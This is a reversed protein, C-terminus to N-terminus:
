MQPLRVAKFAGAQGLVPGSWPTDSYLVAYTAGFERAAVAWNPSRAYHAQMVRLGAFGGSQLPGYLRAMRKYWERMAADAFPISTYDVLVPRAAVMRFMELEPPILWVADPPSHLAALRAVRVDDGTLDSWVLQTKLGDRGFLGDARTILVAALVMTVFGAAGATRLAASLGPARLVGLLILAAMARVSQEEVAARRAVWLSALLLLGPGVLRLIPWAPAFGTRALVWPGVALGAWTMGALVLAIPHGDASVVMVPLVLTWGIWGNQRVCNAMAWGFGIFGIWKLVMLMRFLQAAVFVRQELMDVFVLSAACMGLVALVAAMLSLIDARMGHLTAHRALVLLTLAAFLGASIWSQAPFTLGLYHHPARFRALIAFFEAGPLRTEEATGWTPAIWALGVLLGFVLGPFILPLVQAPWHRMPHGWVRAIGAAGFAIAAIEVGILPHMLMALAFCAVAGWIRGCLLMYFGALGAPIAINAPQFSDFRLYGALGLSFSGNTVALIAALAGGLAGAGLFRRTAGYTVAGLAFNTAVSLAHIVLPLPLLTSLGALGWAYYIRPGFSAASDLYFDGPAFGPDLLRAVITLQEIQNGYGFQTGILPLFALLGLFWPALPWRTTDAQVEPWRGPAPPWIM